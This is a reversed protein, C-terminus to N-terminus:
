LATTGFKLNNLSEGAIKLDLKTNTNSVSAELEKRAHYRRADSDTLNEWTLDKM